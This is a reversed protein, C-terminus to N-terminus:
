KLKNIGYTRRDVYMEVVKMCHLIDRKNTLQLNINSVNSLGIQNM